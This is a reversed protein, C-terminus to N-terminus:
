EDGVEKAATPADVRRRAEYDRILAEASLRRRREWTLADRYRPETPWCRPLLLYAGAAGIVVGVGWVVGYSVVAHLSNM